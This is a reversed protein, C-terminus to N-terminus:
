GSIRERVAWWVLGTVKEIEGDADIIICRKPENRAIEHFGQRLASHFQLGKREFRDESGDARSKARALGIQPDLDFILTVDPRTDRVITKELQDILQKPALGAFQQYARTSDMFRDSIVTSGVHLAPRILNRLHADRAAYNLLAEAEASWTETSGEVLLKRLENGQTTGGPERTVVVDHGIAILRESLIRAQTSKGAGEGGEFTIFFGPV